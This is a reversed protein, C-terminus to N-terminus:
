LTRRTLDSLGPQMLTLLAFEHAEAETLKAAVIVLTPPAYPCIVSSYIHLAKTARM